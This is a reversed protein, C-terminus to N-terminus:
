RIHSGEWQITRRIAEDIQIIQALGLENQARCIDPVYVSTALLTEKPSAIQISSAPSFAMAVANAVERITMSDQSGVNYPQFRKGRMLITWLWICLDAAYLYSRVSYGDGKVQIPTNALGDRIFNGIAFHADLPMYPGVFSFCRAVKAEFGYIGGYIASLLEAVRKGEGYASGPDMVDPAGSYTESVHSLEASQRGYVAGSSIFLLKEAQCHGAFELTRRTGDVITDFVQTANGANLAGVEAAAHIVHSFHGAPFAFQRVDGLCLDIAPHSVLHPAKRQFGGPNRTLVVASADLGLRDNAWAFSELLWCGFFGTGGTIFLRQGRLEDWLPETHALIYDLDEALRNM